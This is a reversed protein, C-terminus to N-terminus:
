LTVKDKDSTKGDDKLSEVLDKGQFHLIVAELSITIELWMWSTFIPSKLARCIKKNCFFLGFIKSLFFKDSSHPTKEEKIKRNSIEIKNSIHPM